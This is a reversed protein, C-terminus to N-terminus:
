LSRFFDLLQASPCDLDRLRFRAREVGAFVKQVIEGAQTQDILLPAVAALNEFRVLAAAAHQEINPALVPLFVVDGEGLLNALLDIQLSLRDDDIQRLADILISKTVIKGRINSGRRASPTIARQTFCPSMSTRTQSRRSNAVSLCRDVSSSAYPPPGPMTISASGTIRAISFIPSSPPPILSSRSSSM